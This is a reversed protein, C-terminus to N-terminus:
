KVIITSSPKWIRIRFEESFTDELKSVFIRQNTLGWWSVGTCQINGGEKPACDYTVDMNNIAFIWGPRRITLDVLYTNEDGGLNHFLEISESQQYKTWAVWGSDYAPMPLEAHLAAVVAQLSTIQQQLTNIQNQLINDAATREGVETNIQNLLQQDAATRAAKEAQDAAKRAAVEADIQNQFNADQTQVAQVQQQLITIENQLTEFPKGQQSFAVVPICLVLVFVLVTKKM